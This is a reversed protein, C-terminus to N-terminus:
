NAGKDAADVRLTLGDVGTIRVKQGKAVPAACTANWIEGHVMVQGQGTFGNVAEAELGLLQEMGSVVPRLRSRAAVWVIAFVLLGGVLAMATVTAIPIGFGPVDTDMLFVAGVVFAAIGGLGLVGFSPAFVEAIMLAVGLGILALGAYNVPLIQLAYAALLLSIAGVVGPLIAGPNYGEFLLGYIGVFVLLLAVQPNTIIQLIETRWDPELREFGIGATALTREGDPLEVTRGDVAALLTGVSPTVLDIVGLELAEEASLSAAERVAREAWDANRGRREALSRIYAVADNVVKSKMADAPADQPENAPVADNGDDAAPPDARDPEPGPREGGLPVPTAAGLNTAPAMAAVHTAYLIYTGASAARAGEPAVFGIVPVPSALIDKIIDRMAGDLGGPTDIQLIAVPADRKRAIELGNAVFASTAPGIPGDVEILVASGSPTQAISGAGALLAVVVIVFLSGLPNRRAASRLSRPGFRM